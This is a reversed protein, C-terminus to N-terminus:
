YESFTFSDVDESQDYMGLDTLPNDCFSSQSSTPSTGEAPDYWDRYEGRWDVDLESLDEDSTDTVVHEVAETGDSGFNLARQTSDRGLLSLNLETQRVSVDHVGIGGSFDVKFHPEGTTPHYYHGIVRGSFKELDGWDARNYGLTELSVYVHMKEPFARNDVRIHEGPSLGLRPRSGGDTLPLGNDEPGETFPCDEIGCHHMWALYEGVSQRIHVNPPMSGPAFDQISFACYGGTLRTEGSTRVMNAGRPPTIFGELAAPQEVVAVGVDLGRSDGLEPRTASRTVM